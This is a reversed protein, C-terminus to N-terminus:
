CSMCVNDHKCVHQCSMCVNDHKCVRQCSVRVHQCFSYVLCWSTNNVLYAYFVHLCPWKGSTNVLCAYLVHMNVIYACLVVLALFHFSLRCHWLQTVLYNFLTDLCSMSVICTSLICGRDQTCTKHVKAHRTHMDQPWPRKDVTQTEQWRPQDRTLVMPKSICVCSVCM